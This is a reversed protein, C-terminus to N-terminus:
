QGFQDHGKADWLNYFKKPQEAGGSGLKGEIINLYDENLFVPVGEDFIKRDGGLVNRLLCHYHGGYASGRHVLVGQLDYLYDGDDEAFDVYKSMNLELDFFYHNNIKKREFTTYDLEFRNLGITLIEPLASIRQGKLADTKQQCSDCSYQNDDSLMEPNMLFDLSQEVNQFVQGDWNKITLLLDLFDEQNSSKAGCNLCEVYNELKGKFTKRFKHEFSTGSLARELLDTIIRNAEAIDQQDMGDGSNWGFSGTVGTTLQQKVPLYDLRAFLSQFEKIINYRDSGPMIEPFNELNVEYLIKKYEPCM